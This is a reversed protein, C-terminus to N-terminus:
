SAHVRARPSLAALAATLRASTTFFVAYALPLWAPLLGFLQPSPFRWAGSLTAPLEWVLGIAAGAAAAILDERAHFRALTAVLFAACLLLDGGLLCSGAVVGLWLLAAPVVGGREETPHPPRPADRLLRGEGIAGVLRPFAVGLIPYCLFIYHPALDLLPRQAHVWLGARDCALETLNGLTCGVLLGVRDAHTRWRAVCVMLVAATIPVVWLPRTAAFAAIGATALAALGLVWLADRKM